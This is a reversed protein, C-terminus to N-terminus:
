KTAELARSVLERAEEMTLLIDNYDSYGLEELIDYMDSWSDIPEDTGYVNMYLSASLSVKGGEHHWAEVEGFVKFPKGDEDFDYDTTGVLKRAIVTHPTKSTLIM